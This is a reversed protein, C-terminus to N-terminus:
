AIQYKNELDNLYYEFYNLNSCDAIFYDCGLCEFKLSSCDRIDTCIGMGKLSYSYPNCATVLLILM